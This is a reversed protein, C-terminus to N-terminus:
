IFALSLGKPAIIVLGNAYHSEIIGSVCFEWSKQFKLELGTCLSIKLNCVNISLM